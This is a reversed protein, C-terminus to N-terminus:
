NGNKEDTKPNKEAPKDETLKKEAPKDEISKKEAPEDETPKKEDEPRAISPTKEQPQTNETASPQKKIEALLAEPILAELSDVNTRLKLKLTDLENSLCARLAIGVAERRNNTIANELDDILSPIDIPARENVQTLSANLASLNPVLLAVNDVMCKTMHADFALVLDQSESIVECAAVINETLPKATKESVVKEMEDNLEFVAELKPADTHDVLVDIIFNDIALVFDETANSLKKLEESESAHQVVTVWNPLPFQTYEKQIKNLINTM